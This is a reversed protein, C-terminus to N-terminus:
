PLLKQRRWDHRSRLRACTYWVTRSTRAKQGLFIHRVHLSQTWTLLKQSRPQRLKLWAECSGVPTKAKTALLAEDVSPPERSTNPLECCHFVLAPELIARISSFSLPSRSQTRWSCPSATLDFGPSITECSCFTRFTAQHWFTCSPNQHNIKTFVITITQQKKDHKKKPKSKLPLSPIVPLEVVATVNRCDTSVSPLVTALRWWSKASSMVQSARGRKSTIVLSTLM